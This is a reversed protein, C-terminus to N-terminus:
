FLQDGKATMFLVQESDSYTDSFTFLLSTLM